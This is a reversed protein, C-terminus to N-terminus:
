PIQDRSGGKLRGDQLQLDRDDAHAREADAPPHEAVRLLEGGVVKGEAEQGAKADAEVLAQLPEGGPAQIAPAAALQEAADHAVHVAKLVEVQPARGAAPPAAPM